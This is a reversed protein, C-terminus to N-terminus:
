PTTTTQSDNQFMAFIFCFTFSFSDAM